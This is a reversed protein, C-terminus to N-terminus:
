RLVPLPSILASCGTAILLRCAAASRLDVPPRPLGGTSVEARTNSLGEKCTTVDAAEKTDLAATTQAVAKADAAATAKAETAGMAEIAAKTEAPDPM